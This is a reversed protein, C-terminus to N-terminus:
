NSRKQKAKNIASLIQDASTSGAFVTITDPRANKVPMVILGPTGTLGLEIALADTRGLAVDYDAAPSTDYGDIHSSADIDVLTLDGEIHDTHYLANHYRLYGDAGLKKWVDIGREAAKQSNNWKSAFIPWEKFIYKVDPRAKMVSELEPALKSCYVCQYDFFEIVAVDAGVPGVVPTDTDFLLEKQQEMVKVAFATQQRAAQQAMLKQSVQVLIEPHAVLYDGAIKGIAAEQEPTFVPLPAAQSSISFLLACTTVVSALVTKRQM